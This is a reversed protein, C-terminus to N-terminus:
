QLCLHRPMLRPRRGLDGAAGSPGPVDGFGPQRFVTRGPWPGSRSAQHFGPYDDEDDSDSLVRDPLDGSDDSSGGNENWDQIELIEVEIKYKLL